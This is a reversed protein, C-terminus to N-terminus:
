VCAIAIMIIRDTQGDRQGEARNTIPEIISSTELKKLGFKATWLEPTV